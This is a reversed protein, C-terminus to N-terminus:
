DYKEELYQAFEDISVDEPLIGTLKRLIPTDGFQEDQNILLFQLYDEILKSVSTGQERAYTKAYPILEERIRLTLKKKM